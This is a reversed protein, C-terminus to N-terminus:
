NSEIIESVTYTVINQESLYEFLSNFTQASDAYNFVHWVLGMAIESPSQTIFGKIEDLDINVESPVAGFRAHSVGLIDHNNYTFNEPNSWLHEMKESGGYTMYPITVPFDFDIDDDNAVCGVNIEGSQPLQTMIDMMDSISGLYKPDSQFAVQDTYGNWNNMHAGHHHLGIEHGNLEWSRVMSSRTSDLLIYSAWQPNFLITLKIDYNTAEIVMDRLDLWYQHPYITSNPFSGPECHIAIFLKPPEHQTNMALGMSAVIIISSLIIGLLIMRNKRQAMM